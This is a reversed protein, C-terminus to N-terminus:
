IILQILDASDLARLAFIKGSLIFEMTENVYKKCNANSRFLRPYPISKNLMSM